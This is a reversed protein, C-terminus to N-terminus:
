FVKKWQETTWNQHECAWQQHKQHNVRTLMPRFNYMLMTYVDFQLTSHTRVGNERLMLNKLLTLLLLKDTPDSWVPCGKSGESLDKCKGM